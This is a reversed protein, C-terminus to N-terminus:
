YHSTISKKIKNGTIFPVVTLSIIIGIISLSVLVEALTFAQHKYKSLLKKAVSSFM